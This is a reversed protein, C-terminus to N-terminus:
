PFTGGAIEAKLKSLEDLIRQRGTAWDPAGRVADELRRNVQDIGSHSHLGHGHHAPKPGSPKLGVGNVADNIDIQYKDLLKRSAAARAHTSQVIHHAGEGAKVADGMNKRLLTSNRATDWAISSQWGKAPGKGFIRDWANRFWSSNVKAPGQTTAKIGVTVKNLKNGNKM